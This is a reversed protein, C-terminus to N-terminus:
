LRQGSDNSGISTQVFRVLQEVHHLLYNM